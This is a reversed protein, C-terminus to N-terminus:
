GSCHYLWKKKNKYMCYISYVLPSLSSFCIEGRSELRFVKNFCKSPHVTCYTQLETNISMNTVKASLYPAAGSGTSDASLVLTEVSFMVETVPSTSLMMSTSSAAMPGGTPQTALTVVPLLQPHLSLYSSFSSNHFFHLMTNTVNKWTSAASITM